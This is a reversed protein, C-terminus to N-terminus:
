DGSRCQIQIEERVIGVYRDMASSLSYEAARRVLRERSPPNRLMQVIASALADENEVPILTGWKGDQLIEASGSCRTAIAPCGSALAELLANSMGEWRSPLVFVSARSLYPFPNAAHGPLAVDKSLRLREALRLLMTQQPGSGLILLRMPMAKRASAFARVLMGFNKQAVLRGVGLIVPPQGAAFWPHDLPERAKQQVEELDVGNSIASIKDPDIRLQNVLDGRLGESVTILRDMARYRRRARLRKVFSPVILLPSWSFRPLANSVRGILRIDNAGCQQFAKVALPHIHNGSSLLIRPRRRRLMDALKGAASLSARKRKSRSYKEGIELGLTRLAIDPALLDRMEGHSQAAWIEVILGAESSATAIRLANRVVGSPALDFLLVALDIRKM